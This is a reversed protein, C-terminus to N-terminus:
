VICTGTYLVCVDETRAHVDTGHEILVKLTEPSAEADSEVEGGFRAVIAQACAAQHLATCGQSCWMERTM